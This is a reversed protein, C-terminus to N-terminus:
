PTRGLKGVAHLHKRAGVVIQAPLIGPALNQFDTILARAAHVSDQAQLQDFVVPLDYDAKVRESRLQDLRSGLAAVAPFGCHLLGAYLNFHAQGSRGLNIGHALFIERFHHFVAYYARSAASRWDSEESGQSLREATSLFELGQMTVGIRLYARPCFSPM